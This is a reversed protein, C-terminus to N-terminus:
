FLSATKFVGRVVKQSLPHPWRAQVRHPLTHGHTLHGQGVLVIVQGENESLARRIQAAMYEEWLTQVKLFRAFAEDTAPGHAEFIPRLTEPHPGFEYPEPALGQREEPTFAQVGLKGLNKGSESSNRLPYIPIHRQQCLQWIPLYLEWAHGWRKDWESATKLEEDDLNGALYDALVMRNPAQFMEAVVVPSRGRSVYELIELQRAHDAASDHEEGLYLVRAELTAPDQAWAWSTLLLLLLFRLM